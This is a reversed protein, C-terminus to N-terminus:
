DTGLANAIRRHIRVPTKLEHEWIRLVTWGGRRLTRNVWRDRRINGAVKADWYKTNSSPRRYCRDCGHWFCGDVFVCLKSSRFVFDPKGVLDQNRRWGSIGFVRLLQAFRKETSKNGTSKVLAM